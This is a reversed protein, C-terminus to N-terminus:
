GNRGSMDTRHSVVPLGVRPFDKYSGYAYQLLEKAAAFRDPATPAGLVVAFVRRSMRPDRQQRKATAVICWGAMETHGTKLGDVSPDEGLLRNKNRKKFSGYAFQQQSSFSYYVPFDATLRMSLTALDRATSYHGPTSIGSPTAFHSDRMGLQQAQRNMLSEFGTLSGGVRKALVVAADNASAVILGTVLDQVSVARGAELHMQAEDDAVQDVDSATVPVMEDWRITGKRLADWVVYATMLKTLSAPQRRENEAKQALVQGSEGDVLIYSPAPIKPLGAASAAGSM